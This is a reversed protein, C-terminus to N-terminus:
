DKHLNRVCHNIFEGMFLCSSSIILFVGYRIDEIVVMFFVGLLLFLCGEFYVSYYRESLACYPKFLSYFHSTGKSMPNETNRWKEVFYIALIHYISLIGFIVSHGLLYYSKPQYVKELTTRWHVVDDTFIALIAKAVEKLMVILSEISIDWNFVTMM